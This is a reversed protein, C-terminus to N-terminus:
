LSDPLISEEIIVQWRQKKVKLVGIGTGVIKVFISTQRGAAPTTDDLWLCKGLGHAQQSIPETSDQKDEKREEKLSSATNLFAPHPTLYTEELLM